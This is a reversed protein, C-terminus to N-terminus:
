LKPGRKSSFECYFILINTRRADVTETQASSLLDLIQQNTFLNDAGQIHGGLYEYPYRCDIVKVSEIISSFEGNILKAMTESSISKLDQHRGKILPLCASRSFDGILDTQIISKEIASDIEADKTLIPIEFVTKKKLDPSRAALNSSKDLNEESQTMSKDIASDIKKSISSKPNKFIISTKKDLDPSRAALSSSTVLKEEEISPMKDIFGEQLTEGDFPEVGLNNEYSKIANSLNNDTQNKM